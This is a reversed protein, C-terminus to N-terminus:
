RYLQEIMDEEFIDSIEHMLARIFINKIPVAFHDSIHISRKNDQKDVSVVFCKELADIQKKIAPFTWDLESELARM